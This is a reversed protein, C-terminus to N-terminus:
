LFIIILALGGCVGLYRYMKVNQASFEQAEEQIRALQYEALSISKQEEERDMIGLNAFLAELTELEPRKFALEEKEAEYALSMAEKPTLWGKEELIVGTTKFLRAVPGYVGAASKAFAEPLPCSIYNIHSKLVTLCSIMQSIHRPREAFAAAARFGLCTAASLILLSGAIKLWM